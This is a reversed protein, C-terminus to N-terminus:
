RLQLAALEHVARVHQRCVALLARQDHRAARLRARPHSGHARVVSRRGRAPAHGPVHGEEQGRDPLESLCVARSRLCLAAGVRPARKRSRGGDAAPPLALMDNALTSYLNQFPDRPRGSQDKYSRTDAPQEYVRNFWVRGDCRWPSTPAAADTRHIRPDQGLCLRRASRRRSADRAGPGLPRHRGAYQPDADPLFASRGQASRPLHAGGGDAKRRQAPERRVAARRRRAVPRCSNGDSGPDGQSRM